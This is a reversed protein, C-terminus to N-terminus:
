INGQIHVIRKVKLLKSFLIVRVRQIEAMTRAFNDHFKSRPM